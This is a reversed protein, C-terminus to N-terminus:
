SAPSIVIDCTKYPEATPIAWSPKSDSIDPFDLFFESRKRDTNEPLKKWDNYKSKFEKYSNIPYLIRDNFDLVPRVEFVEINFIDYKDIENILSIPTKGTTAKFAKFGLLQQLSFSVVDNTSLEFFMCRSYKNADNNQDTLDAGKAEKVTILQFTKGKLNKAKLLGGNKSPATAHLVKTNVNKM